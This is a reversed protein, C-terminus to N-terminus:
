QSVLMGTVAITDTDASTSALTCYTLPYGLTTVEWTLTETSSTASKWTVDYHTCTGSAATFECTQIKAKTTGGNRSQTCTMTMDTGASRTRVMTLSAKAYGGGPNSITFSPSGSLVTSALLAGLDRVRHLPAEQAMAPAAILVTLAAALHRM